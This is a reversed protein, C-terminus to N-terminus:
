RKWFRWWPRDGAAGAHRPPPVPSPPVNPLKARMDRLTQRAFKEPHETYAQRSSATFFASQPPLEDDEAYFKLAEGLCLAAQSTTRRKEAKAATPEASEVLLYHLSLWQAADIIESPEPTPNIPEAGAGGSGAERGAAPPEPWLFVFEQQAGCHACRAALRGLTAGGGSPRPQAEPRGQLELPGQSCAECATVKLYLCAESQSHARPPQM